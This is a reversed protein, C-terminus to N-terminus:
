GKKVSKGTLDEALNWTACVAVFGLLAGVEGKIAEALSDGIPAGAARLLVITATVLPLAAGTQYLTRLIRNLSDRSM